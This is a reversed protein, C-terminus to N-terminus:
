LPISLSFVQHVPQALPAGPEIVFPPQTPVLDRGLGSRAKPPPTGVFSTILNDVTDWLAHFAVSELLGGQDYAIEFLLGAAARDAAGALITITSQNDLEGPIHALTFLSMDIARAPWRGLSLQLEEYFFGRFLPDETVGADWSTLTGLGISRVVATRSAVPNARTGLEVGVVAGTIAADASVGAWVVPHNLNAWHFPAVVLDDAAYPRWSDNWASSGGAVRADRYAAYGAYIGQHIIFGETTTWWPNLSSSSIRAGDYRLGLDVTSLAAAWDGIQLADVPSAVAVPVSALTASAYHYYSQPKLGALGPAPLYDVVVSGLGLVASAVGLAVADRRTFRPPPPIPLPRPVLPEELTETGLPPPKMLPEPAPAQADARDAVFFAVAVIVAAHAARRRARPM